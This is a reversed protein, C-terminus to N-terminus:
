QRKLLLFVNILVGQEGVSVAIIRILSYNEENSIRKILIIKLAVM